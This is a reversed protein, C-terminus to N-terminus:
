THYVIYLKLYTKMKIKEKRFKEWKKSREQAGRGASRCPSKKNKPGM